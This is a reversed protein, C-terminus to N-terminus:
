SHHCTDGGYQDLGYGSFALDAQCTDRGPSAVHGEYPGAVHRRQHQWTDDDQRGRTAIQNVWTLQVSMGRTNYPRGRPLVAQGTLM